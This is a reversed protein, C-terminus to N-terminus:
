QPDAALAQSRVIDESMRLVEAATAADAAARRDYAVAEASMVGRVAVTESESDVAEVM